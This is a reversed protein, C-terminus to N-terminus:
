RQESCRARQEAGRPCRRRRAPRPPAAATARPNPSAVRRQTLGPRVTGPLARYPVGQDPKSHLLM